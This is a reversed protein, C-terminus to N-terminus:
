KFMSKFFGSTKEHKEGPYNISNIFGRALIEGSDLSLKEVKLDTGMIELIGHETNLIIEDEDFTLIDTVGTISLKERNELIINQIASNEHAM